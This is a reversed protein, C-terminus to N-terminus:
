DGRRAYSVWPSRFARRAPERAAAASGHGQTALTEPAGRSTPEVSKVIVQVTGIRHVPRTRRGLALSERLRAALATLQAQLGAGSPVGQPVAAAPPAGMSTVSRTVTRRDGPPEPARPVFRHVHTTLSGERPPVTGELAIPQHKAVRPVGTPSARTAAAVRAPARHTQQRVRTAAPATAVGQEDQPAGASGTRTAPVGGSAGDVRQPAAPAKERREQVHDRRTDTGQPLATARASAEAEAGTPAGLVATPPPAPTTQGRTTASGGDRRAPARGARTGEEARAGDAVPGNWDPPEGTEVASLIAPETAPALMAEPRGAPRTFAFSAFWRAPAPPTARGPLPLGRRALLFPEAAPSLTASM